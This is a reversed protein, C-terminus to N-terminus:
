RILQERVKICRLRGSELAAVILPQLSPREVCMVGLDFFIHQNLLISDGRRLIEEVLDLPDPGEWPVLLRRERGNSWSLCVLRPAAVGDIMKPTEADVCEVRM